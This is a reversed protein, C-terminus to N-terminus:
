PTSASSPFSGYFINVGLPPANARRISRSVLHAVPAVPRHPSTPGEKVPFAPPQIPVADAIPLVFPSTGSRFYEGSSASLPASPTSSGSYPHGGRGRGGRGRGQYPSGRVPSHHPSHGPQHQWRPQANYQQQPHHNYAMPREEEQQEQPYFDTFDITDVIAPRM